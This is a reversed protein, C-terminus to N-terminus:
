RGSYVVRCGGPVWGAERGAEDPPVSAEIELM